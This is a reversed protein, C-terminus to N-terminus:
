VRGLIKRAHSYRQRAAEGSTGLMSGILAWSHGADRALAVASELDAEARARAAFAERIAHLPAADRAQGPENTEFQRALEDAQEIIQQATRPM